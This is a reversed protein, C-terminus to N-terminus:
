GGSSRRLCSWRSDNVCKAHFGPGEAKRCGENYSARAAKIGAVIALLSRAAVDILWLQNSRPLGNGTPLGSTSLFTTALPSCTIGGM